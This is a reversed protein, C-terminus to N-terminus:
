TEVQKRLELHLKQLGDRVNGIYKSDTKMEDLWVGSGFMEPSGFWLVHESNIVLFTGFESWLFVDGTEPSEASM